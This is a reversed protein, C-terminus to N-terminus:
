FTFKEGIIEETLTWLEAAKAPDSSHPAVLDNAETSDTLYAGPKDDLRPDFAAAVTTAAGQQMTKFELEDNPRGDPGLFSYEKLGAIAQEHQMINTYILGPHLSYSNILGKSRKSLEIATLVNASKAQSYAIMSDYTALDPSKLTSLNVGDGAAHGVSSVFVVRPTYHAAGSALIKAALLATFLFPGVHDTAIQSELNDVTLKFGGIPAAANHIVVHLPEPYANVEDAAKRVAALSSLNLILPRVGALPVEQELAEEVRKLRESNHGTIILLNAHKALVRATEFGIGNISTGTLLVNKGKIEHALADAVEEATTSFTFNPLSM